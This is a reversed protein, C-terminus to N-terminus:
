PFHRRVTRLHFPEYGSNPKWISSRRHARETKEYGKEPARQHPICNDTSASYTCCNIQLLQVCKRYIVKPPCPITMTPIIRFKWFLSGGIKSLQVQWISNAKSFALFIKKATGLVTRACVGRVSKNLIFRYNRDQSHTQLHLLWNGQCSGAVPNSNPSMFLYEASFNPEDQHSGQLVRTTIQM